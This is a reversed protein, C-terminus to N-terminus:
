GLPFQAAVAWTGDTQEELLSMTEVRFRLPLCPALEKEAVAVITATSISETEEGVTLHPM